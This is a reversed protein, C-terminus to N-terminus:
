GRIWDISMTMGWWVGSEDKAGIPDFHCDQFSVGSTSRGRCLDAFATLLGRPARSSHGIPCFVTLTMRGEEQWLEVTPDGSGISRQDWLDGDVLVRGWCQPVDQQDFPKPETFPENDWALPCPQPAADSWNADLFARIAEFAHISAM